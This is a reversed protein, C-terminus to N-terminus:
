LLTVVIDEETEELNIKSERALWGLAAYLPKEKLKTAKKIEKVSLTKNENLANWIFGANTGIMEINM